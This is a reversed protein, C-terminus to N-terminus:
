KQFNFRTLYDILSLHYVYKGCESYFRHKGIMKNSDNDYLSVNLIALGKNFNVKEVALLLSYDLLGLSKMFEVDKKIVNCIHKIDDHKFQLLGDRNKM